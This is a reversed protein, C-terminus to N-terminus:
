QSEVVSYDVVGSRRLGYQGHVRCPADGCTEAQVIFEQVHRKLVLRVRYREQDM